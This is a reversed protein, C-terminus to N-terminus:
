SNGLGGMTADGKREGVVSERNRLGQKFSPVFGEGPGGEGDWPPNTGGEGDWPPNTGRSWTVNGGVWKCRSPCIWKHPRVFLHKEKNILLM